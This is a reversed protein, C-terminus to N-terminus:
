RLHKLKLRVEGFNGDHKESFIWQDTITEM